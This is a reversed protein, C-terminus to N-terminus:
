LRQNRPTAAPTARLDLNRHEVAHCIPHGYGQQVILMGPAFGCTKAQRVGADVRETSEIAGIASCDDRYLIIAFPLPKAHTNEAAGVQDRM